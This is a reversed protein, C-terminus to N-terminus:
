RTHSALSAVERPTVGLLERVDHIFHAQDRM